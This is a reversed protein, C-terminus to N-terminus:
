CDAIICEKLCALSDQCNVLQNKANELEKELRSKEGANMLKVLEDSSFTPLSDLSDRFAELLFSNFYFELNLGLLTKLHRLYDFAIHRIEETDSTAAFLRRDQPSFSPLKDGQKDAKEKVNASASLRKAIGPLVTDCYPKILSHSLNGANRLLQSVLELHMDDLKQRIMPHYELMKYLSAYTPDESMEIKAIQILRFFLYGVLKIFWNMAPQVYHSLIFRVLNKIGHDWDAHAMGDRMCGMCSVIENHNFNDESLSKSVCGLFFHLARQYEHGGFIKQDAHFNENKSLIVNRRQMMWDMWALEREHFSNLRIKAFPSQATQEIEEWLTVMSNRVCRLADIPAGDLYSKVRKRWTSLLMHIDQAVFTVDVHHFSRELLNINHMLHEQREILENEIEPLKSKINEVTKKELCAQLAPFGLRSLLHPSIRHSLKAAYGRLLRDEADGLDDLSASAPSSFAYPRISHQAYSGFLQALAQPTGYADDAIIKDFKSMAFVCRRENCWSQERTLANTQFIRDLFDIVGNNTVEDPQLLVLLMSNPDTKITTLIIREIEMRVDKEGNVDSIEQTLKIGPLDIFQMTKCKEWKITLNLKDSCFGNGLETNREEIKALTVMLPQRTGTGNTVHNMKFGICRETLSSKGASQSAVLLMKVFPSEKNNDRYLRNIKEMASLEAAPAASLTPFAGTIKHESIVRTIWKRAVCAGICAGLIVTMVIVVSATGTATDASAPTWWTAGPLYIVDTANRLRLPADPTAAVDALATGIHHDAPLDAPTEYSFM